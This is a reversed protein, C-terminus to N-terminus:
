QKDEKTMLNNFHIYQSPKDRTLAVSRIKSIDTIM